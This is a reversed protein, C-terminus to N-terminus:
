ETRKDLYQRITKVSVFIDGLDVGDDFFIGFTDEIEVLINLMTISDVGPISLLPTDENFDPTEGVALTITESVIRTLCDNQM